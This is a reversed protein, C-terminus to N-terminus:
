PLRTVQCELVILDALGDDCNTLQWRVREVKATWRGDADVWDILDGVRPVNVIYEAWVVKGSTGKHIEVLEKM